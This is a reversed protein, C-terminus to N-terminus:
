QTISAWNNLGSQTVNGTSGASQIGELWNSGGSLAAQTSTLTAGFGMDIDIHNDDGGTQKLTATGNGGMLIEAYNEGNSEQCLKAWDGGNQTVNLENNFAGTTVQYAGLTNNGNNQTIDAINSLGLGSASREQYLGVVNKGDYQKVNLTNNRHNGSGGVNTQYAADDFEIVGSYSAGVIKNKEGTQEVQVNSYSRSDQRIQAINNHGVQAGDVIQEGDLTSGGGSNQYVSFLNKDGEQRIGANVNNWAGSNQKLGVRNNSGKQYLTLTNYSTASYQTANAAEDILGMNTAGVLKNKDGIQEINTVNYPEWAPGVTSAGTAGATQELKAINKNGDQTIDGKNDPDTNAGANEILQELYILNNTGNKQVTTATNDEAAAGGQIVTANNQGFVFSVAFVMAFLFILKKM